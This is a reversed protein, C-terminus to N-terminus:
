EQTQELTTLESAPTVSSENRTLLRTLPKPLPSGKPTQHLVIMLYEWVSEGSIFGERKAVIAFFQDRMENHTPYKPNGDHYARHCKRCLSILNEKLDLRSGGGVGKQVIHNPDLGTTIKVRCYECRDKARFPVLAAPDEWKM